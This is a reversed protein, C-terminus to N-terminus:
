RRDADGPGGDPGESSEPGSSNTAGPSGVMAARYASCVAHAEALASVALAPVIVMGYALARERLPAADAGRLLEILNPVDTMGMALSFWLSPLELCFTLVAGIRATPPLVVTPRLRRPFRKQALVSAAAVNLGTWVAIVAPMGPVVGTLMYLFVANVNFLFIFAALRLTSPKRQLIRDLMGAFRRPVYLLPEFRQRLVPIGLLMGGGFLLAMGLAGWVHRGILSIAEGYSM